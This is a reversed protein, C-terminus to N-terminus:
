VSSYFMEERHCWLAQNFCLVSSMQFDLPFSFLAVRIPASDSQWSGLARASAGFKSFGVKLLEM